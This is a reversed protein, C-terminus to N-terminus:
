RVKPYSACKHPSAISSKELREFHHAILIPKSCLYAGFVYVNGKNFASSQFVVKFLEPRKDMVKFPKDIFAEAVPKDLIDM